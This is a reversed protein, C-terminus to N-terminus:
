MQRSLTGGLSQLREILADREDKARYAAEDFRDTPFGNQRLSNRVELLSELKLDLKNLADMAEEISDVTEAITDPEEEEDSYPDLGAQERLLRRVVLERQQILFRQGDLFKESHELLGKRQLSDIQKQVFDIKKDLSGIQIQFKSAEARTTDACWLPRVPQSPRRSSRCTQSSRSLKNQSSFSVPFSVPVFAM